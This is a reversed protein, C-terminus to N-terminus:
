NDKADLLERVQSERYRRWGSPNVQVATLLGLETWRQITKPHVRFIAAVERPTLLRDGGDTTM